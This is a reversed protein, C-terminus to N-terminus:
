FFLGIKGTILLCMTGLTCVAILLLFAIFFRQISTMGLFKGKRMAPVSTTGAAPNFKAKDEFLPSSNADERLNDFM